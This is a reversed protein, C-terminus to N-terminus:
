EGQDPLRADASLALAALALAWPNSRRVAGSVDECLLATAKEKLDEPILSHTKLFRLAARRTAVQQQLEGLGEILKAAASSERVVDAARMHVSFDARNVADRRAATAKALDARADQWAAIEEELAREQAARDSAPRQLEVVSVDHAAALAQIYAEAPDDPPLRKLEELASRADIRRDLAANEAAVAAVVADEAAERAEIAERLAARATASQKNTM